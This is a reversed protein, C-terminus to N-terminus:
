PARRPRCTGACSRTGRRAARLARRALDELALDVGRIEPEAGCAACHPTGVRRQASCTACAAITERGCGECHTGGPSVPYACYPCQGRRVRRRPARKLYRELGVLALFSAVIGALAIILPGSEGLDIEDGLYDGAMVLAQVTAAGVAAVGAVFYSSRRRRLWNFLWFSVGICLLM